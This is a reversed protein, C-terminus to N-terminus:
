PTPAGEADRTSTSPGSTAESTSQAHSEEHDHDGHAHEHPHRHPDRKIAYIVASVILVIYALGLWTTVGM